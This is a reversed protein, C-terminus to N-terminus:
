SSSRKPYLTTYVTDNMTAKVICIGVPLNTWSVCVVVLARDRHKLHHLFHILLLFPRAVVLPKDLAIHLIKLYIKIPLESCPSSNVQTRCERGSDIASPRGVDVKRKM